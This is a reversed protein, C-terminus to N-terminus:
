NRKKTYIASQKPVDGILEEAFCKIALKGADLCYAFKIRPHQLNTTIESGKHNCRCFHRPFVAYLGAEGHSKSVTTIEIFLATINRSRQIIASHIKIQMHYTSRSTRVPVSILRRVRNGMRAEPIIM